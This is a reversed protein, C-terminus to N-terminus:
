FMCKMEFSKNESSSVDKMQINNMQEQVNGANGMISQQYGFAVQQYGQLSKERVDGRGLSMSLHPPAKTSM